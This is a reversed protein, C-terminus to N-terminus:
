SNAEGARVLRTGAVRDHVARSDAVFLWELSSVLAGFTIAGMLIVVGAAVLPLGSALFIVTVWSWLPLALPQMVFRLIQQRATGEVRVGGRTQGWTRGQLLGRSYWALWTPPMALVVAAAAQADRVEVDVAGYSSRVFLWASALLCGLSVWAVLTFADYLASATARM